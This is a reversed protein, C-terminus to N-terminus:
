SEKDGTSTTSESFLSLVEEAGPKTKQNAFLTEAKIETEDNNIEKMRKIKPTKPIKIGKEGPIQSIM